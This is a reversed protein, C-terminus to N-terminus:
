FIFRAKRLLYKTRFNRFSRYPNVRVSRAGSPAEPPPNNPTTTVIADGDDDEDLITHVNERSRKRRIYLYIIVASAVVGIISLIVLKWKLKLSRFTHLLTSRHYRGSHTHTHTHTHPHLKPLENGHKKVPVTYVVFGVVFGRNKQSERKFNSRDFKLQMNASYGLTLSFPKKQCDIQTFTTVKELSKKNTVELRSFATYIKTFILVISDFLSLLECTESIKLWKVIIIIHHHSKEKFYSINLICLVSLYM